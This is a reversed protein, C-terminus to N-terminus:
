RPGGPSGWAAYDSDYRPDRGPLRPDSPSPVGTFSVHVPPLPRGVAPMPLTAEESLREFMVKTLKLLIAHLTYQLLLAGFGKYLGGIGEETMITWFCDATGEYRTIIPVVGLGTDTNDIITRTGQLNLRHLVTELPFLVTDALLNGTFTAILEPYYTEYISQEVTKEDAAQHKRETMDARVSVLVTYQALSSIIYHLLGYTVTPFFLKWVPLLRTMQKSSMSLLRSTGERLCDFVGPRESAIESQVSEVLSAAYFPTIVILSLGKLFIHEALKKLSSHRNVERPLPTLEGIVSETAVGIGKVMLTSGIGKWLTTLSQHTQIHYMPLFLTFPTLHFWLANHHVQCQRRLVIMPHSLVHESVVSALGIGLGAFRHLQEKGRSTRPVPLNEAPRGPYLYPGSPPQRPGAYGERNRHSGEPRRHTEPGIQGWESM